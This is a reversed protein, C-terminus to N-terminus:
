WIDHDLGQDPHEGPVRFPQLDGVHAAFVDPRLNHLRAKMFLFPQRARHHRQDRDHAATADSDNPAALTWFRPLPM